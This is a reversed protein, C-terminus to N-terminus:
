RIVEWHVSARGYICIKCEECTIGAVEERCRVTKTYPKFGPSYATDVCCAELWGEPPPGTDPDTSAYVVFNPLRRLRELSAKLEPILWSRTYAYFQYDPLSEAVARISENYEESFLDGGVHVRVIKLTNRERQVRRIKEALMEAFRDPGAEFFLVLNSAYKSVNTPWSIRKAPNKVYCYMRCWPTAGPCTVVSRGGPFRVTDPPISYTIIRRGLKTNGVGLFPEGLHRWERCYVVRYGGIERWECWAEVM